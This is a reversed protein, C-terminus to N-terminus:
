EAEAGDTVVDVKRGILLEIDAKSMTGKTVRVGDEGFLAYQGGGVHRVDYEGTKSLAVALAEEESAMEAELKLKYDTVQRNILKQKADKEIDFGAAKALERDIPEGAETYYDGPEDIYMGIKIGSPHIRIMVGRDLDLGM